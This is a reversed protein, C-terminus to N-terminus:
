PHTATRMKALSTPSFSLNIGDIIGGDGDDTNLLHSIEHVSTAAISCDIIQEPCEKPGNVEMFVVSGVTNDDTIGLTSGAPEIEPDEDEAITHQYGGLLYATWFETDTETSIQDFDFLNRVAAGTDASVNGVFSVSNNNDGIDYIPRIYASAFVNTAPNDGNGQVACNSWSPMNEGQMLCIDPMPVDEGPSPLTDGDLNTGDNNNMDDDDYLTFMDGATISFTGQNNFITVTNVTNANVPPNATPNSAIIPYFKNGIKIRGNEFRNPELSSPSPSVDLTKTGNGIKKNAPFTGEVKNGTVAGMSDVEIHLKRWTTLLETRKFTNTPLSNGSADKLGTGDISVDSMVGTTTAAVVVNNGPQMTVTLYVFAESTNVPVGVTIESATGPQNPDTSFTGGGATPRNDDGLNNNPDITADSSPDDVDFAKFTLKLGNTETSTGGLIAKVRVIKRNQTPNNINKDPFIRLGGACNNNPCDLPSVVQEFVVSTVNPTPGPCTPDGPDCPTPLQPPPPQRQAQGVNFGIYFNFCVFVSLIFIGLVILRKM